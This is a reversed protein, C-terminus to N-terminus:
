SLYLFYFVGHNQSWLILVSEIKFRSIAGSEVDRATRVWPASAHAQDGKRLVM